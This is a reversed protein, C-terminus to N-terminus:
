FKRFTAKSIMEVLSEDFELDNSEEEDTSDLFDSLTSIIESLITHSETEEFKIQNIFCYKECDTLLVEAGDYMTEVEDYTYEGDECQQTLKKIRFLLSRMQEAKQGQIAEFEDRKLQIEREKLYYERGERENVAELKQMEREHELKLRLKEINLKTIQVDDDDYEDDDVDDIYNSMTSKPKQPKFNTSNTLAANTTEWNKVRPPPDPDHQLFASSLWDNSSNESEMFAKKTASITKSSVSLEEQITSYSNGQRLLEIIQAQIETM